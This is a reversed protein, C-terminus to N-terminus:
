EVFRYLREDLPSGTAPQVDERYQRTHAAAAHQDLAQQNEWVEIVTFHNARMAHQLVDFRLSGREKRSADALQKLAAVADVMGGGGIDVHSIVHVANRAAAGSAGGAVLRYPRQDYISLRIPQLASRFQTMSAAAQHGDYSGQDKWTEVIVFRGAWGVQEFVEAKVFGAEKAATDRYRRFGEVLAKAGAPTVEVYTVAYRAADADQAVGTAGLGLLLALSLFLTTREYTMAAYTYTRRV